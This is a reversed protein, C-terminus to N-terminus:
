FGGDGVGEDGEEDNRTFETEEGESADVIRLEGGGKAGIVLACERGEDATEAADM